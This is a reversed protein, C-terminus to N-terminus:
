ALVFGDNQANRNARAIEVSDVQVIVPQNMLDSRLSQIEGVLGENAELQAAVSGQQARNLILEGSNVRALVNDGSFSTGPVIGGDQFAPPKASAIKAGQVAMAAGVLGALVFNFPPPASGLANSIAKPINVAHQALAAAKGIAFAEKNGSQQLTSITGLTGQLSAVREKQTQDEFKKFALLSQEDAKKQADRLKALAADRKGADELQKADFLARLAQERGLKNSLEQFREEDRVENELKDLEQQELLAAKREEELLQLASLEAMKSEVSKKGAKEKAVASAGAAIAENHFAQEIRLSAQEILDAAESSATSGRTFADSFEGANDSAQKGTEELAKNVADLAGNVEDKFIGTANSALSIIELYGKIVGFFTAAFANGALQLANFAAVFTREFPDLVRLVLTLGDALSFLGAEVFNRIDGSNENLLKGLSQFAGILEVGILKAAPLIAEGLQSFVIQANDSLTSLVGGLTKSQRITAEFFIGGEDNLTEFARQFTEFDVKGQSVLDKVAGEAVGMTKAIAPGIPIAREQLQLLREGTLKGAASIQGFILGIEGLDNGTGAAADGLERLIDPIKETEFGFSILQQATKAVGPFQFPTTATFEQLDRIVKDAEQASGTLTVFQTKIGELEVAANAAAKFGSTVAGTFASIAATAVNAAFAGKFVDFAKTAGNFSDKSTKELKDIERVVKRIGKIADQEEVTLEFSIQNDAM